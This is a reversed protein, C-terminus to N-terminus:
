YYIDQIVIGKKQLEIGKHVYNIFRERDFSDSFWEITESFSELFFEDEMIIKKFEPNLTESILFNAFGIIENKKM